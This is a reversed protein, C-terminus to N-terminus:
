NAAQNAIRFGQACIRVSSSLYPLNTLQFVCLIFSSHVWFIHDDNRGVKLYPKFGSDFLLYHAASNWCAFSATVDDWAQSSQSIPSSWTIDIASLWGAILIRENYILRCNKFSKPGYRQVHSASSRGNSGGIVKLSPRNVASWGVISLTWCARSQHLWNSLCILSKHLHESTVRNVAKKHNTFKSGLCRKQTWKKCWGKPALIARLVFYLKFNDNNEPSQLSVLCKM